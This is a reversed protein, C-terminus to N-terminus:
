DESSRGGDNIYDEFAMSVGTALGPLDPANDDAPLSVLPRASPANPSEM